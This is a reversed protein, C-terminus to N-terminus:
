SNRNHSENGSGELTNAEDVHGYEQRIVVAINTIWCRVSESLNDCEMLHCIVSLEDARQESIHAYGPMPSTHKKVTSIDM